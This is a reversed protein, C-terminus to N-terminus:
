DSMDAVQQMVAERRRASRDARQGEAARAASARGVMRKSNRVRAGGAPCSSPTVADEVRRWRAPREAGRNRKPAAATRCQRAGRDRQCTIGRKGVASSLIAATAAHQPPPPPRPPRAAPRIPTHRCTRTSSFPSSRTHVSAHACAHHPVFFHKMVIEKEHESALIRPRACSARGCM